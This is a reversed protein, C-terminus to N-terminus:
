RDLQNSGKAEKIGYVIINKRRDRRAKEEDEKEKPRKEITDEANKSVEM